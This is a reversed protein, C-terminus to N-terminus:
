PRPSTGRTGATPFSRGDRLFEEIGAEVEQLPVQETDILATDPEYEAVQPKSGGCSEFLGRIPDSAAGRRYVSMLVDEAMGWIFGGIWDTNNREIPAADALIAAALWARTGRATSQEPM